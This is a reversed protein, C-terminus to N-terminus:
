RSKSSPRSKGRSKTRVHYHARTAHAEPPFKERRELFSDMTVAIDPFAKRVERDETVLPVSLLQALVVFECDYASLRTAAALQLVADSPVLHECGALANETADMVATALAVDISGQRMYGTLISRLESRWLIPSHWEADSLRVRHAVSTRSGNIWCYAIVNSDVVIV